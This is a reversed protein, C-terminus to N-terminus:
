TIQGGEGSLSPGRGPSVARNVVEFDFSENWTPHQANHWRVATRRAQRGVPGDVIVEVYPNAARWREAPPKTCLFAHLVVSIANKNCNKLCM